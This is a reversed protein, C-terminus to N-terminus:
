EVGKYLNILRDELQSLQTDLSADVTGVPSEVICTKEALSQDPFITLVVQKPFMEKISEKRDLILGYDNPHVKLTVDTQEITERVASKVINVFAAPEEMLKQHLIIETCKVAIRLIDQDAEEIKSQHEVKAQNTIEQAKNILTEYEHRADQLGKEYGESFGAEKAEEALTQSKEKAENLIQDAQEKAQNIIENAKEKAMEIERLAQKNLEEIDLRPEQQNEEVGGPHHLSKLQIVKKSQTSENWKYINSM